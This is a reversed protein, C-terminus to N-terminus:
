FFVNLSVNLLCDAFDLSQFCRSFLDDQKKKKKKQRKDKKPAAGAAYPPEWALPRMPATEAPRCWLRLLALDPGCRRGVGCSM